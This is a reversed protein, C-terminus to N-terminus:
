AENGTKISLVGMQGFMTMFDYFNWVEAMQGDRLRVMLIGSFDVPQQTACFGLGDGCHTARVRTIASVRDGDHMVEGVEVNIDSLASRFRKFFRRFEEKGVVNDGNEDTLGHAVVDDALLEDITEERGQNWVEEFWRHLLSPYQGVRKARRAAEIQANMGAFDIVNWAEAIQGNEERIQVIGSFGVPAGTPEVGLGDGLHTGTVHFRGWIRDGESVTEEVDIHLGPFASHVDRFKQPGRPAKGDADVLGHAVGNEALLVDIADTSKQNWVEEMWRHILTPNESSSM